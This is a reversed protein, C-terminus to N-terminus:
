PFSAPPLTMAYINKAATKASMINILRKERPKERPKEQVNDRVTHKSKENQM